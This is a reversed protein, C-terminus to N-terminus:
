NASQKGAPDVVTHTVAVAFPQGDANALDVKNFMGVHKGLLELARNAVSGEYQYVGIPVGDKDVVAEAQMSREVNQKLRKLVYDQDIEVREIRATRAREIASAIDPKTLNESGVSRATNPNYGARIAAQTANLDLLYEAVFAAQKPTLPREPRKLDTAKGM